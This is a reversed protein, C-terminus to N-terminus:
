KYTEIGQVLWRGNQLRFEMEKIGRNVPPDRRVVAGAADTIVGESVRYGLTASGVSSTADHASASVIKYILRIKYGDERAQRINQEVKQCTCTATRLSALPKEDMSLYAKTLAAYYAIGAAELQEKM